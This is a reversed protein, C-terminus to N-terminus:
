GIAGHRASSSMRRGQRHRPSAPIPAAAPSSRRSWTIPLRQRDAATRARPLSPRCCTPASRISRSRRSRKMPRRTTSATTGISCARTWVEEIILDANERKELFAVSQEIFAEEEASFLVGDAKGNRVARRIGIVNGDHPRVKAARAPADARDPRAAGADDSPSGRQPSAADADAKGDAVRRTVGPRAKRASLADVERAVLADLRCLPSRAQTALSKRQSRPDHLVGEKRDRPTPNLRASRARRISRKVPRVRKRFDPHQPPTASAHDRIRGGRLAFGAAAAPAAAAAVAAVCGSRCRPCRGGTLRVQEHMALHDLSSTSPLM